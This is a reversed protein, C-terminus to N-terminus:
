IRELPSVKPAQQYRYGVARYRIGHRHYFATLTKPNVKLGTQQHLLKAREFMTYGSWSELTVQSLLYEAIIGTIKRKNVHHVKFNGKM